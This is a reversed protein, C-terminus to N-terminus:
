IEYYFNKLQLEVRLESYGQDDGSSPRRTNMLYKDLWEEDITHDCIKKVCEKKYMELQHLIM